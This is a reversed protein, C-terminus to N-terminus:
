LQDLGSWEIIFRALRPKGQQQLRFERDIGEDKCTFRQADGVLVAAPANEVPHDQGLGALRHARRIAHPDSRVAADGVQGLGIEYQQESAIQGGLVIRRSQQSRQPRSM